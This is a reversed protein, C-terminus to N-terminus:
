KLFLSISEQYKPHSPADGHNAGELIVHTVNNTTGFRTALDYGMTSPVLEDKESTLILIKFRSFVDSVKWDNKSGMLIQILFSPIWYNTHFSAVESLSTPPNELILGDLLFTRIRTKELAKLLISCGMSSCMLYNRNILPISEILNIARELLIDPGANISAPDYQCMPYEFAIISCKTSQFLPDLFYYNYGLTRGRGHFYLIICNSEPYEFIVSNSHHHKPCPLGHNYRNDQYMNCWMEGPANTSECSYFQDELYDRFLYVSCIIVISSVFVKFM